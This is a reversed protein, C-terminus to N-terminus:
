TQIYSYAKFMVFSVQLIDKGQKMASVNQAINIMLSIWVATVVMLPVILLTILTMVLVMVLWHLQM